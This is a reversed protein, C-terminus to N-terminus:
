RTEQNRELVFEVGFYDFIGRVPAEPKKVRVLVKEVKSFNALIAKAIKSALAEILNFRNNEVIDKIVTYVQGYHVTDKVDDSEGAKKLDALLELDLFFKQGLKNEEALAGHYAYFALNNMLIKEM